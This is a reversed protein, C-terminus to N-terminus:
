ISSDRIFHLKGTPTFILAEKKHVTSMIIPCDDECAVFLDWHMIFIKWSIRFVISRKAMFYVDDNEDWKIHNKLISSVSENNDANYSDIWNGIITIIGTVLWHDNPLHFYSNAKMDVLESFKKSAFTEDCLEIDLDRLDIFYDSYVSKHVSVM